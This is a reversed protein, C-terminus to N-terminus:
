KKAKLRRLAEQPTVEGKELASLIETSDKKDQKREALEGPSTLGLTQLVEELRNRITPYSLGLEKEVDKINGRCKLFAEIFDLQERKLSCFRCPVFEGETKTKCHTCVFNTVTIDHGCISCKGPVQYKM